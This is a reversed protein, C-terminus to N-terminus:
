ENFWFRSKPPNAPNISKTPEYTELAKKIVDDNRTGM